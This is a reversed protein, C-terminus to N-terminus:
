PRGSIYIVVVVFQLGRGSREPVVLPDEKQGIRFALVVDVRCFQM